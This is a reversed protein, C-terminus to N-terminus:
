PIDFLGEGADLAIGMGILSEAHLPLPESWRADPQQCVIVGPAVIVLKPRFCNIVMARSTSIGREGVTM